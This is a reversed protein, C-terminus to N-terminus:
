AQAVFSLLYMAAYARWPRWALSRKELDSSTALGLARAVNCDLSPFADPDRLARMAVWQPISKAIGPIESLRCLLADPDAVKEFTIQRNCVASSLARISASQEEPLDLSELDAAALVEPTPFLHTLGGAPAFPQGFARVV